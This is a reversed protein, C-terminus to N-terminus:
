DKDTKWSPKKFHLIILPLSIFVLLGLSLFLVFFLNSGIPLQKPPILGVCIAFLAGLLALGSVCWIGFYGGPIKYSRVVKPATYRLRIAASFLLVYMVLYLIATLDTLLFFASSVNPMLLYVLSIITVIGGQIWLIGVPVGRDNIKELFPPIDGARATHLLGKSPGIIWAAVGGITGF